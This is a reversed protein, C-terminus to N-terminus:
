VTRWVVMMYLLLLLLSGSFFPYVFSIRDMRPLILFSSRNIINKNEPKHRLVELSECNTYINKTEKGGV